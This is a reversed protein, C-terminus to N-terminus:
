GDLTDELRETTVPELLKGDRDKNKRWRAVLKRLDSDTALMGVRLEETGTFPLVWYWTAAESPTGDKDADWTIRAMPEPAEPGFRAKVSAVTVERVERSLKRTKLVMVWAIVVSVVTTLAMAMNLGTM